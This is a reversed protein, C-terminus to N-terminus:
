KPKEDFRLKINETRPIRSGTPTVERSIRVDTRVTGDRLTRTSMQVTSGDRLTGLRGGGRAVSEGRTLGDFLRQAAGQGGSLFGQWTKQGSSGSTRELRGALREAVSFARTFSSSAIQGALVTGGRVILLEPAVVLSAGIAMGSFAQGGIENHQEEVNAMQEPSLHPYVYRRDMISESQRGDPDTFRYPNNFAYYYRNFNQGTDSDAQVPDVSVFRASVELTFVLLMASILVPVTKSM